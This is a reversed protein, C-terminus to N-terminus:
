PLFHNPEAVDVRYPLRAIGRKYFCLIAAARDDVIMGCGGKKDPHTCGLAAAGHVLLPAPETMELQEVPWRWWNWSSRNPNGSPPSQSWSVVDFLFKM